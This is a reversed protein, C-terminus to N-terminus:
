QILGDTGANSIGGLSWPLPPLFGVGKFFMSLSMESGYKSFVKLLIYLILRDHLFFNVWVEFNSKTFKLDQCLFQCNKLIKLDQKLEM